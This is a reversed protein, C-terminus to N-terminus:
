KPIEADEKDVWSGGVPCVEAEISLPVNIWDWEKVLQTTMVDQALVLFDDLEEPPVDALISDHIQGIILTKMKRKKIEKVLRVLSWLLCHFASGQVPYNIVENRKMFGQCIFGTKTLMWGQGLYKSYWHKKWKDYIPFREQWFRKEVQQIHREFTGKRPKEDPDLNGLETIGQKALHEKLPTGKETKLDATTIAEWLARACDIYWDGYFQPFVFCNKAYFRSDKTVQKASLLYCEMAMDRHMDKEPDSIYEIMVPDKHYCAAICVELQSYDLEVLQRGPRAIFATRILKGMGKDRVPINQFNPSDSSSRFTTTTHLNFFPHLFGDVVERQIGKLYTALAKQLKKIQLHRKVFPHNVAMLSKEDTQYQKESKTLVGGEIGMHDFLIKGLQDNSNFNTKWGYVRKWKKAVDGQELKHKLKEIKKETKFICKKLYDTDIQIGNGEVQALAIAGQHLLKYAQKKYPIMKNREANM